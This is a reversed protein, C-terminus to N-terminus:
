YGIIHFLHGMNENLVGVQSGSCTEITGLRDKSVKYTTRKVQNFNELQFSSIKKTDLPSLENEKKFTDNRPSNPTNEEKVRTKVGEPQNELPNHKKKKRHNKEDKAKGQRDNKQFHRDKPPYPPVPFISRCKNPKNIM